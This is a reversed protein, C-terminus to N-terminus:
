EEGGYPTAYYVIEVLDGQGPLLGGAHRLLADITMATTYGGYSDLESGDDRLAVLCWANRNGNCRRIRHTAKPM